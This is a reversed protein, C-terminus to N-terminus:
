GSIKHLSFPDDRKLLELSHLLRFITNIVLLSAKKAREVWSPDDITIIVIDDVFGYM